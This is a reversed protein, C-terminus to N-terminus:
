VDADEQETEPAEAGPKPADAGSPYPSRRRSDQVVRVHSVSDVQNSAGTEGHNVVIAANVDAVASVGDRVFRIRKRWEM